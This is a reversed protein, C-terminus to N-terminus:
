RPRAPTQFTEFARYKAREVWLPYGQMENGVLHSPLYRERLFSQLAPFPPYGVFILAPPHAHLDRMIRDIRPRILPHDSNAYAKLLNDVFFHRSTGDLGSYFFLPSQWGWIYLQPTDTWLTSRTALDRGLDRLVVWQGGGKFKVTLMEPPTMLYDRVQIRVTWVLALSLLLVWAAWLVARVGGAMMRSVSDALHVAVAVALGPLPLLYYHQWFLGPLAVQIWASITWAAILRRAMTSTRVIGLAMVSPIGALWFPWSGAGWWVLYDTKGFPPPLHGSPDANGTVWRMWFPPANPEAPTDTALARGYQFIDEYASTGAGQLVLILAALGWILVFGVALTIVDKVRDRFPRAQCLLGIAFLPGHLVVIQKFLCAIGLCVGSAFLLRRSGRDIAAILAAVSAIAFLNIAHEFNAGNGYLYPDTSVVAYLFAALCAAGPGRLRLGLWWVLMITALIIPIPMMRVTLEHSGGIALATAYLWYGGPPKNETLDRYMVAGQDIRRGIYAYAAEDCDLPEAEAGSVPWLDLGFRDRLTPGFTHARLWVDFILLGALVLLSWRPPSAPKFDTM